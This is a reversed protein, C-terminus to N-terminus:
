RRWTSTRSAGDYQDQDDMAWWESASAKTWPPYQAEGQGAGWEGSLAANYTPSQTRERHGSGKAGKGRRTDSRKDKGKGKNAGASGGKTQAQHGEPHPVGGPQDHDRIALRQAKKFNRYTNIRWATVAARDIESFMRSIAENQM